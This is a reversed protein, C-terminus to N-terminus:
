QRDVLRQRADPLVGLQKWRFGDGNRVCRPSHQALWRHRSDIERWECARRHVPKGDTGGLSRAFNRNGESNRCSARRQLREGRSRRGPDRGPGCNRFASVGDNRNFSHDIVAIPDLNELRRDGTLM